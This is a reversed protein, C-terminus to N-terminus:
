MLPHVKGLPALFKFPKITKQKAKEGDASAGSGSFLLDIRPQCQEPVHRKLGAIFSPDMTVAPDWPMTKAVCALQLACFVHNLKGSSGQSSKCHFSGGDFASWGKHTACGIAHSVQTETPKLTINGRTLLELENECFARLVDYDQTLRHCAMDHLLELLPVTMTSSASDSMALIGDHSTVSTAEIEIPLIRNGVAFVHLM